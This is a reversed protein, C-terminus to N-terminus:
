GLIPCHDTTGRDPDPQHPLGRLRKAYFESTLEESYAPPPPPACEAGSTLAFPRLQGWCPQLPAATYALPTPEWFEPGVPPTYPCNGYIAAGDTGAWALVAAAVARGHRVSRAYILPQVGSQFQNAFRQELATIAQLSAQSANPFLGRVAQALTSNAVTPWDYVRFPRPQPVSTLDNLQGMLAVNELSASVIAEHLAVAAVGYIRSAPPPTVQEAKVLDYLLDFWAVAVDSPAEDPSTPMWPGGAWSPAAVCLFMVGFWSLMTKLQM